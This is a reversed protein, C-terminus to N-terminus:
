LTLMVYLNLVKFIQKIIKLDFNGKILKNFGPESITEAVEISESNKIEDNTTITNQVPESRVVRRLLGANCVLIIAFFYFILIFKM